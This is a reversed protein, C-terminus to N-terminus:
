FDSGHRQYTMVGKKGLIQIEFIWSVFILVIM